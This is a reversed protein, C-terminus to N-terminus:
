QQNGGGSGGNGGRNAGGELYRYTMATADMVLEGSAQNGDGGTKISIDNLTVIRPLGAVKSAFTGFQHYTGRVKIAIPAEAYFDKPRESQPKFLEEQLGSAGRAQSISHLLESMETESPLQDLMNGFSRRMEELQQKYADLNAVKEQKEKLEDRLQQEQGRARELEALQGKILFYYGGFAVAVCLVVIVVIRAPLPWNGMDNPDLGKAQQILDGIDVNQARNIAERINM